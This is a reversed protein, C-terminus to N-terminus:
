TEGMPTASKPNPVLPVAGVSHRQHGFSPSSANHATLSFASRSPAHSRRVYGNATAASQVATRAIKRLAKRIGRTGRAAPTITAITMGTSAASAYRPIKMAAGRANFAMEPSESSGSAVPNPLMAAPAMQEAIAM